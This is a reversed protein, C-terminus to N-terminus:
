YVKKIFFFYIIRCITKFWNIIILFYDYMKWKEDVNSKLFNCKRGFYTFAILKLGNVSYCNMLYHRVFCVSIISIRTPLHSLFCVSILKRKWNIRYILASIKFYPLFFIVLYIFILSVFVILYSSWLSILTPYTKM